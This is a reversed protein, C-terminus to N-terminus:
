KWPGRFVELAKCQEKVTPPLYCKERLPFRTRELAGCGNVSLLTMNDVVHSAMEGAMLNANRTFLPFLPALGRLDSFYFAKRRMSPRRDHFEDQGVGM